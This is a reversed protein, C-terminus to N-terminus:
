QMNKKWWYQFVLLGWIRAHVEGPQSSFLQNKLRKIEGSNFIHQEEIFDDNLLDEAILSKLDHRFWKLLPVEFGQKKRMYLEEPLLSRFTDKVIKKQHTKDIKFSEPLTFAFNVITYDLFPNRVELSNAMSMLDVKTLMDGQLVLHADTYFIRNLDSEKEIFRLVDDKRQQYIKHDTEKDLLKSAAHQDIFSCWRWYRDKQSLAIGEAFRNIQRLRNGLKSNRSGSLIKTFIGAAGMSSTFLRNHHILWEARHKNYGGFLEDAGDGSLAVTVHKRTHMSLIHVALASSDAFPEDIYDLVNFLNSFLDDNTLSFVTHDTKHQRAVLNAYYTEDFLPEDRFGISFTKLHPTHRAALAAIVSSDIGGSLFSGLPVDSVLRRQVAEEMLRFFERQKEVYSFDDPYIKFDPVPIKYYAVENILPQRQKLDIKVFCGPTLKLVNEFVSYPAPIYNLQLYSFISTFDIKKPVEFQLLSKMESAFVLKDNDHYYLLPKVGIRDRAIFVSEEVQDFIALAFFGNVKQLCKEGELIYLNLLVETDSESRLSVGKHLLQERHERYNFFEGNFIITYRGSSDTFPQNALDSTDIISLRRHGFAVKENTFIGSHDPGRKSLCATALHIKELQKKGNESFSIVGAIGCM